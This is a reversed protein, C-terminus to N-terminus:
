RGTDQTETRSHFSSRRAGTSPGRPYVSRSRTGAPTMECSGDHADGGWPRVPAARDLPRASTRGAIASAILQLTTNQRERERALLDFLETDRSTTWTM